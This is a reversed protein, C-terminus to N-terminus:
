MCVMQINLCFPQIYVILWVLHKAYVNDTRVCTLQM